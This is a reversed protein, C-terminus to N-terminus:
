KPADDVKIDFKVNDGEVSTVTVTVGFTTGQDTLDCKLTAGVTGQLNEPCTVSEPKHGVQGGLQTSIQNAVDEKKVSKDGLSCSTTGALALLSALAAAAGLAKTMSITM